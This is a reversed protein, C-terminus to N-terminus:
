RKNHLASTKWNLRGALSEALDIGLLISMSLTSCVAAVMRTTCGDVKMEVEAMAHMCRIVTVEGEILQERLM